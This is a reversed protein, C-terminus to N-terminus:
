PKLVIDVQEFGAEELISKVTQYTGFTAKHDHFVQPIMTPPYQKKAAILATKLQDLSIKLGKFWISDDKRVYLTIPSSEKIPTQNNLSAQALEVRDSELLPAIMIFGILIVFVVDILPTLNVLPEEFAASKSKKFRSM